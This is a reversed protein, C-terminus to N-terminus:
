ASATRDAPEAPLASERSDEPARQLAGRLTAPLLIGALLLLLFEADYIIESQRHLANFEPSQARDVRWLEVMKPTVLTRSVVGGIGAAIFCGILVALLKRRTLMALITSVVIAVVALILQYREFVPFVHPGAAAGLAKSTIFLTVILLVLTAQGGIWLGWALLLLWSLFYRM